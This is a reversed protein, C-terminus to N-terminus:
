SLITPIPTGSSGNRERGGFDTPSPEYLLEHLVSRMEAVLFFLFAIANRRKKHQVALKSAVRLFDIFDLNKVTSHPKM